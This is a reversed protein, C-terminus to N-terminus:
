VGRVLSTNTMNDLYECQLFIITLIKVPNEIINCPALFEYENLFNSILKHVDCRAELFFLSPLLILVPRPAMEPYVLKLGGCIEQQLPALPPCSQNSILLVGRM